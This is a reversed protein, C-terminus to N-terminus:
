PETGLLTQNSNTVVEVLYPKNDSFIKKIKSKIDESKDILVFRLEFAEAIKKFNLTGVGTKEETDLRNGSFINDQWNKMSAYGGNNIVFTKINFGYHSITKLEQINLEISGDGTVSIIQKNKAAVAAGISLPVSLGMAANTTSSIESQNKEFHWVQGGVYYNSGADNTFISDKKSHKNLLYMFRYLDIPNSKNEILSIKSSNKLKSCYSLWNKFYSIKNKKNISQNFSKFFFKLDALIKIDFDILPHNLSQKDIDVIIIKKNKYHNKKAAFSLPPAARCGLFIVLDSKELIEKGYNQGKIGILGMNFKNSYPFLDFAFRSSFFPISYKKIIAQFEKKCKSQKLGNGIIFLPKKSKELSKVISKTNIKKNKVNPPIFKKLKKLNKIEFSQTDLPIELWVPGPRGSKAIHIAKKLEFLCDNPNNITKSYKTFKKIAESISFEAVGFSRIKYDKYKDTTFIKQVQGSIIIIPASDVYAEALGPIANTAGPGATVCVAGIGGNTRAYAEAMMPAAAENRSVFYKIGERQIADNLYMAGYGTLMFIDKVHKKLEKAVISSVTIRQM